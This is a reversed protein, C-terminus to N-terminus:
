EVLEVVTLEKAEEQVWKRDKASLVDLCISLAIQWSYCEDINFQLEYGKICYM